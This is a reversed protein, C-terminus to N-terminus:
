ELGGEPTPMITRRGCERHAPLRDETVPCRNPIAFLHGTVVCVWANLRGADDTNITYGAKFVTRRYMRAVKSETM